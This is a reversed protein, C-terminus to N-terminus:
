SYNIVRGVRRLTYRILSMREEKLIAILIQNENGLDIARKAHTAAQKRKGINRCERAAFEHSKSICINKRNHQLFYEPHFKILQDVMINRETIWSSGVNNNRYRREYIIDDIIKGKKDAELVKLWFDWDAGGRYFSENYGGVQNFLECKIPSQGNFPLTYALKSDNLGKHFKVNFYKKDFYICNGIIFQVNPYKEITTNINNVMNEPLLDDADLHCYWDTDTNNIALTRCYYPGHNETLKIKKLSPHSINDFIQETKKEAKGDLIMIAKWSIETQDLVSNWAETLYNGENFATIGITIRM